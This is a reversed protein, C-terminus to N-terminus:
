LSAGGSGQFFRSGAGCARPLFSAAPCTPVRDDPARFSADTGSGFLDFFGRRYSDTPATREAPATRARTQLAQVLSSIVTFTEAYSCSEAEIKVKKQKPLTNSQIYHTMGFTTRFRWAFPSLHQLVNQMVIKLLFPSRYKTKSGDGRRQGGGDAAYFNGRFEAFARSM